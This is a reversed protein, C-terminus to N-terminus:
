SNLLTSTTHEWTFQSLKERNACNENFGSELASIIDASSDVYRYFEDADFLEPLRGFRTTIVPINVAMAELVSLPIEMAGELETVPFCYVDAAQYLESIDSFAERLFVVGDSELKVRVDDDQQTATSGIIVVQINPLAKQVEGFWLINRSERIHGVHLLIKKDEPLGYRSRLLTKDATIPSFRSLDIGTPLVQASIGIETLEDALRSSLAFVNKLTISKVINRQKPSLVKRQVSVVVLKNGLFLSALWTKIIASFTLAGKPIYVIKVPRRFASNIVLRPAILLSNIVNPLWPIDRILTVDHETDLTQYIM